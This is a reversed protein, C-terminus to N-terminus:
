SLKLTKVKKPLDIYSSARLPNYKNINIYISLIEIFLWCSGEKEFTQMKEGLEQVIINVMASIDSEHLIARSKLNFWPQITVEKVEDGDTTTKSFEVNM